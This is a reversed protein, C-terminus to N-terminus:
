GIENWRALLSALDQANVAGDGNMDAISGAEGWDALLIGLDACDTADDLNFDGRAYECTDPVWDRDLDGAINTFIECGDMIGNSDCDLLCDPDNSTLISLTTEAWGTSNSTYELVHEGEPLVMPFASTAAPVGDIRFVGDSPVLSLLVIPELLLLRVDSVGAEACANGVVGRAEFRLDASWSKSGSDTSSLTLAARAAPAVAEFGIADGCQLDDRLILAGDGAEFSRATSYLCYAEASAAASVVFPLPGGAPPVLTFALYSREAQCCGVTRAEIVVDGGAPIEIHSEGELGCECNWSGDARYISIDGDQYAESIIMQVVGTGNCRYVLRAVAGVGGGADQNDLAVGVYGPAAIASSSDCAYVSCAESLDVQPEASVGNFVGRGDYTASAVAGRGTDPFFEAPPRSKPALAIRELGRIDQAESSPALSLAMVAAGFLSALTSQARFLENSMMSNFICGFM